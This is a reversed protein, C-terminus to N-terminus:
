ETKGERDTSDEQDDDGEGDSRQVIQVISSKRIRFRSSGSELTVEDKEKKINIVTGLIGASTVVEDNKRLAELMAQREKEQRRAPRWLLFYGLVILLFIPFFPNGLLGGPTEGDGKAKGSPEQAILTGLM